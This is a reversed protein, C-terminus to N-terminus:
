TVAGCAERYSVGSRRQADAKLMAPDLGPIVETCILMIASDLYTKFEEPLMKDFATSDVDVFFSDDHFTIRNVYGLRTKLWLHLPKTGHYFDQNEIATALVGGWYYRNQKVSRPTTFTLHGKYHKDDRLESIIEQDHPTAPVLHLLKKDPVILIDTAM